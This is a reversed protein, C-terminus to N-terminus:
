NAISAQHKVLFAAEITNNCYCCLGDHQLLHLM